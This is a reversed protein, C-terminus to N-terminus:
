QADEKKQGIQYYIEGKKIMGLDERAKTEVIDHSQKLSKIEQYIQDNKNRQETNLQIQKNINQQVHMLAAFGKPGTWIDAQWLTVLIICVVCFLLLRKSFHNHELRKSAQIIHKIAM